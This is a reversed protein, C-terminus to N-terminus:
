RLTEQQPLLRAKHQLGVFSSLVLVALAVLFRLFGPATLLEVAAVVLIQLEMKGLGLIHIPLAVVAKGVAVQVV